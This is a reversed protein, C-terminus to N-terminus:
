FLKSESTPTIIAIRVLLVVKVGVKTVSKEVTVKKAHVNLTTSYILALGMAARTRTVTM